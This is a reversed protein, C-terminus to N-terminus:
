KVKRIFGRTSCRGDRDSLAMLPAGVKYRRM